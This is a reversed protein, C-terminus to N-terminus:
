NHRAPLVGAVRARAGNRKTTPCPEPALPIAVCSPAFNDGMKVVYQPITGGCFRSFKHVVGEHGNEGVQVFIYGSKVLKVSLLSCLM